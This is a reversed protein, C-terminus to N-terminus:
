GPKNIALSGNIIVKEQWASYTRSFISICVEMDIDYHELAPLQGRFLSSELVTVVIKLDNYKGLAKRNATYLEARQKDTFAEYLGLYEESIIDKISKIASLAEEDKVILSSVMLLADEISDELTPIWVVEKDEGEKLILAPKGNETLYITKDPIIGGSNPHPKGVIIQATCASM